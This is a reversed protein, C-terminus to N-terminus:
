SDCFDGGIIFKSNTNNESYKCSHKKCFLRKWWAPLMEKVPTDKEELIRKYLSVVEATSNYSRERGVIKLADVGLADLHRLQCAVCASEIDFLNVPEKAGDIHYLAKCSVGPCFSDLVGEGYEHLFSCAGNFFSCGMYGIVEYEMIKNQLLREIEGRTIHYSLTVRNVGNEKLFLVQEKNVTKLFVSGHLSVGLNEHKLAKLLGVDGVIISDVGAKIAGYIYDLYYKELNKGGYQFDSFFQTNATFNVKVNHEHAYEVIKKLAAFDNVVKIGDHGLKGRGSFSYVKFLSDDGGTYIEQTGAEILAVASEFTNVPSLLKM